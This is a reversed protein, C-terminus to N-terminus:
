VLEELKPKETKRKLLNYSLGLNASDAKTELILVSDWLPNMSLLSGPQPRLAELYPSL